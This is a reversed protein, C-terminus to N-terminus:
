PKTLSCKLGAHALVAASQNPGPSAGGATGTWDAHIRFKSMRTDILLFPSHQSLAGRSLKQPESFLSNFSWPRKM